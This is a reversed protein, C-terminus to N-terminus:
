EVVEGCLRESDEEDTSVRALVSAESGRWRRRAMVVAASMLGGVSVLLSAFLASNSQPVVAGLEFGGCMRGFFGKKKAAEAAAQEEARKEFCTKEKEKEKINVGPILSFTKAALNHVKGLMNKANGAISQVITEMLIGFVATMGSAGKMENSFDEKYIDALDLLAPPMGVFITHASVGTINVKQIYVNSEKKEKDDKPKKGQDPKQKSEINAKIERVNSSKWTREYQLDLCTVQVHEIHIDSGRSKVAKWTHVDVLIKGTKLFYPSTYGVPNDIVVDHIEVQGKWAFIEVNGIQVPVGLTETGVEMAKAQIKNELMGASANSILSVAVLALLMIVKSAM